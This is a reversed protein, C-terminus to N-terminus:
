FSHGLAVIETRPNFRISTTRIVGATDSRYSSNVRALSFAAIVNFQRNIQWSGGVTGAPGFSSSLRVRTPGGNAADGAPTSDLRYFRTYNFSVGVYPRLPYSADLFKYDLLVSPAFWERIDIADDDGPINKDAFRYGESATAPHPTERSDLRADPQGRHAVRCRRPGGRM